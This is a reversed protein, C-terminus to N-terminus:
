LVTLGGSGTSFKALGPQTTQGDILGNACLIPCVGADDHITSVADMAHVVKRVRSEVLNTTGLVDSVRAEEPIRAECM